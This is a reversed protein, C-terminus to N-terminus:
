STKITNNGSGKYFTSISGDPNVDVNYYDGNYYYAMKGTRYFRGNPNKDKYEQYENCLAGMVMGMVIMVDEEKLQFKDREKFQNEIKLEEVHRLYVHLFTEFSCYLLHKGTVNYRKETFHIIKDLLLKSKEPYAECFKKLSLGMNKLEIDTKKLRVCLRRM